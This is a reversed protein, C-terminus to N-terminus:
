FNKRDGVFQAILYAIWAAGLGLVALGINRRAEGCDTVQPACDGQFNLAFSLALTALAYGLISAIL